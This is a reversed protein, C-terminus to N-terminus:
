LFQPTCKHKQVQCPVLHPPAFSIKTYFVLACQLKAWENKTCDCKEEDNEAENIKQFIDDYMTTSQDYAM